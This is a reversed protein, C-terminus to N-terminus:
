SHERLVHLASEVLLDHTAEDVVFTREGEPGSVKRGGLFRGLRSAVEKAVRRLDDETAKEELMGLVLAIDRSAGTAAAGEDLREGSAAICALNAEYVASLNSLICGAMDRLAAERRDRTMANPLRDMHSQAREFQDFSERSVRGGDISLTGKQFLHVAADFTDRRPIMPMGVLRPFRGSVYTALLGANWPKTGGVHVTRTDIRQRGAKAFKRRDLRSVLEAAIGYSYLPALAVYNGDEVPFLIQSRYGGVAAPVAGALRRECAAGVRLLAEQADPTFTSLAAERRPGGFALIEALSVPKGGVWSVCMCLFRMHANNAANKAGSLPSSLAVSDAHVGAVGATLETVTMPPVMAGLELRPDPLKGGHTGLMEVALVLKAEAAIVRASAEAVSDLLTAVEDSLPKDGDRDDSRSLKKVEGEITKKADDLCLATAHRISRGLSGEDADLPAGRGPTLADLVRCALLSIDPLTEQLGPLNRM